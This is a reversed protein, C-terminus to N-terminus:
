VIAPPARIRIPAHSDIAEAESDRSCIGDGNEDDCNGCFILLGVGLVAVNEDVTVNRNIETSDARKM